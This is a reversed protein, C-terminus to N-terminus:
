FSSNDKVATDYNKLKDSMILANGTKEMCVTNNYYNM